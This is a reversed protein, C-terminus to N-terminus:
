PISQGQEAPDNARQALPISGSGKCVQGASNNTM